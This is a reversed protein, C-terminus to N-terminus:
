RIVLVPVNCSKIIKDAVSGLVARRLGGHGHSGIVIMDYGGDRALQAIELAADGEPVELKAPVGAAALAELAPAAIANPDAPAIPPMGPDTGFAGVMRLAVPTEVYVCTVEGTAGVLERHQIVFDVARQAQTSGDIAIVIRM